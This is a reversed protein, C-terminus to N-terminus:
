TYRKALTMAVRAALPDGQGTPHGDRVLTLVPGRPKSGAKSIGTATGDTNTLFFWGTADQTITTPM